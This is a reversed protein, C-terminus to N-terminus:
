DSHIEQLEVNQEKQRDQARKNLLILLHTVLSFVAGLLYIPWGFISHLTCQYNMPARVAWTVQFNLPQTKRPFYTGINHFRLM